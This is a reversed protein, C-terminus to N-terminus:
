TLHQNIIVGLYKFESVFSLQDNGIVLDISHFQKLKAGSGIIMFKSKAVNVTTCSLLM